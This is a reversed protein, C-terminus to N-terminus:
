KVEGTVKVVVASRKPDNSMITVTKSISGIRNTDYNISVEKSGGPPIDTTPCQATICYCSGKCSSIKLPQDGKNYIKITRIPNSGKSINGYDVESPSVSIEQSYLSCSVLTLIIINFIKKM